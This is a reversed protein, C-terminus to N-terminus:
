KGICFRGFLTDLMAETDAAGTIRDLARMAARLDEARLVDDNQDGARRLASTAARIHSQQATTLTLCGVAPLLMEARTTIADVLAAMNEGTVASVSLQGVEGVGGLDSKTRVCVVHEGTPRAVPDGLWLVIDSGHIASEARAIGIAEIPDETDERLGAMDIFIM